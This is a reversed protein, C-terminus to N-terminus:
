GVLGLLNTKEVHDHSKTSLACRKGCTRAEQVPNSCLVKPVATARASLYKVSADVCLRGICNHLFRHSVKEKVNSFSDPEVLSFCVLFVDTSEYSLARLKDYDEQGATDILTLEYSEGNVFVDM